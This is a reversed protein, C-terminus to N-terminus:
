SESLVLRAARDFVLLEGDLRALGFQNLLEVVDSCQKENLRALPDGYSPTICELPVPDDESLIFELVTHLCTEDPLDLQDVFRQRIESNEALQAHVREAASRADRDTECLRLIKNLLCPWMGGADVIATRTEENNLYNGNDLRQGIGWQDWPKVPVLLGESNLEDLFISDVQRLDWYVAPNLVFFFSITRRRDQGLQSLYRQYAAKMTELPLIQAKDVIQYLVVRDKGTKKSKNQERIVLRELEEASNVSVSIRKLVTDEATAYLHKISEEIYELGLARSATIVRFDHQRDIGRAQAFTFASYLGSRADIQEHFSNPELDALAPKSVFGYLRTEIDAEDGMIRVLNPSKLRYHGSPTALVGLGALERLLGRFEDSEMDEFQAPWYERALTYLEGVKFERSFSDRVEMQAVIMAWVIVQYRPDLALTWEFRERIRDRVNDQLYIYEVDERTIQIPHYPSPLEEYNKYLRELLHKCFFQILSPHYNTFSLIRYICSDNLQFGLAELPERVLAVAAEEELPGVLIPVGFHALPQNPMSQFRQVHHLGAFVVKFRRQSDTMLKRLVSVVKFGERADRSLFNDAEDLMLLMQLEKDKALLEGVKFIIEDDSPPDEPVLGEGSMLKWLHLWIRSPEENSYSDGLPKIDEVWAYQHRHPDHAQRRVYRLLASKGMQRGGYVLCSGDRQLLMDAAKQRGYFIEPPADGMLEPTYPITTGYPVACRLFARLRADREGTLFFFLTEDLVALPLNLRRTMRTMERRTSDSIRGFYLVITSQAGLKAEKVATGLNDAGPREWVILIDYVARLSGFQPFPRAQDSADMQLSLRIHGGHEPRKLKDEVPELITFGLFSFLDTISQPLDRQRGLSRWADFAKRILDRQKTPINGYQLGAWTKGSGASTMADTLRGKSVRSLVHRFEGFERLYDREPEKQTALVLQQGRELCHRAHAIYEDVVRTDGVEMARQVLTRFQEAEETPSIDELRPSLEKWIDEQYQIRLEKEEDLEQEVSRLRNFAPLFNVTNASDIGEVRTRFDNLRDDSLGVNILTSEIRVSTKGIADDLADRSGQLTRVAEDILAQKVNEDDDLAQVISDLFRYDEKALWASFQERTLCKWEPDPKLCESLNFLDDGTPFGEDDLELEPCRLLRKALVQEINVSTQLTWDIMSGGSVGTGKMYSDLLKLNELIYDYAFRELGPKKRAEELEKLCPELYASFSQTLQRVQQQKWDLRESAGHEAVALWEQAADVVESVIRKLRELEYDALPKDKKRLLKTDIGKIRETIIQDTSWTGLVEKLSEMEERRDSAAQHLAQRLEEGEAFLGKWVRNVRPLGFRRQANTNIMNRCRQAAENILKERQEHSSRLLLDRRNLPIGHEAFGKVLNIMRQLNPLHDQPFLWQVSNSAPELLAGVLGVGVACLETFSERAHLYHNIPYTFQKTFRFGPKLLYRVSEMAALLWSPLVTEEDRHESARVMWYAGALDRDSLMQFVPQDKWSEEVLGDEVDSSLVQESTPEGKEEKPESARGEVLPDDTMAEKGALEEVDDHLSVDAEPEDFSLELQDDQESVEENAAEEPIQDQLESDADGLRKELPSDQESDTEQESEAESDSELEPERDLFCEKISSYLSLIKGELEEMQRRREQVEDINKPKQADLGKYRELSDTLLDLYELVMDAKDPLLNDSVWRSVVFGFFSGVYEGYDTRFANLVDELEQKRQNRDQKEERIAEVQTLFIDMHDWFPDHADISRIASLAQNMSALELAVAVDQEQEDADSRPFLTTAATILLLREEDWTLDMEQRVKQAVTHVFDLFEESTPKDESDEHEREGLERIRLATESELVLLAKLFDIFAMDNKDVVRVSSQLLLPFPPESGRRFGKTPMANICFKYYNHLDSKKDKGVKLVEELLSQLFERHPVLSRISKIIQKYSAGM